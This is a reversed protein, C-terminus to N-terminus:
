RATGPGGPANTAPVTPDNAFVSAGGGYTADSFGLAGKGLAAQLCATVETRTGM